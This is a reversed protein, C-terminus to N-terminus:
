QVPDNIGSLYTPHSANELNQREMRLKLDAAICHFPLAVANSLGPKELPNRLIPQWGGQNPVELARNVAPVM